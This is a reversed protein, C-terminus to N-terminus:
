LGLVAPGVAGAGNGAAAASTAANATASATASASGSAGSVANTASSATGAVHGTLADVQGAVFEAHFEAQDAAWEAKTAMDARARAQMGMYAHVTHDVAVQSDDQLEGYADAALRYAMDYQGETSMILQQGERMTVIVQDTTVVIDGHSGGYADAAGILDLNGSWGPGALAVSDASQLHGGVGADYTLIVTQDALATMQFVQEAHSYLEVQPPFDPARPTEAQVRQNVEWDVGAVVEVDQFLSEDTEAQSESEAAADAADDGQAQAFGLLELIADIGFNADADASAAATAQGTAQGALNGAAASAAATGILLVAMALAVIKATRKMQAEVQTGTPRM